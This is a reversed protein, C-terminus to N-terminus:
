KVMLRALREALGDLAARDPLTFTLQPKGASDEAACQSL